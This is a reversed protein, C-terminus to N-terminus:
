RAVVRIVCLQRKANQSRKVRVTRYVILVKGPSLEEMPEAIGPPRARANGCRGPRCSPLLKVPSPVVVTSATAASGEIVPVGACISCRHANSWNGQGVQVVWPPHGKLGPLVRHDSMAM